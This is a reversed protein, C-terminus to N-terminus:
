IKNILNYIKGCIEFTQYPSTVLIINESIAKEIVKSDPNFNKPFLIVPMEALSAVAIVNLHRMITIWIEGQHSNGMEDSLLDSSYAGTIDINKFINETLIKGDISEIINKLEM